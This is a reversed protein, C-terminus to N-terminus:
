FKLRLTIGYDLNDFKFDTINGFDDLAYFAAAGVALHPGLPLNLGLQLQFYLDGWGTDNGDDLYDILTSVGTEFLGDQLLLTIEPTIVTDFDGEGSLGSGYMAGLRWGAGGEFYEIFAGYSLDDKGYPRDDFKTHDAHQKVMVALETAHLATFGLSLLLACLFHKM